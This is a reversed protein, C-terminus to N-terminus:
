TREGEWDFCARCVAAGETLRTQFTLQGGGALGALVGRDLASILRCVPGSYVDSFACRRITIAGDATGQFAIGLVRYLWRAADM